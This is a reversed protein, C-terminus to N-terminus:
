LPEFQPSITGSYGWGYIPLAICHVLCATDNLVPWLGIAVGQKDATDHEVQM